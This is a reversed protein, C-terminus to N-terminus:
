ERYRLFWAQIFSQSGFARNALVFTSLYGNSDGYIFHSDVWATGASNMRYGIAYSSDNTVALVFRQMGTSGSDFSVSPTGFVGIFGSCQEFEGSSPVFRTTPNPFFLQDITGFFWRLCGSNNPAEYVVICRTGDCAMSPAHWTGISPIGFTSANFLTISEPDAAGSLSPIGWIHIANLNDDDSVSGGIFAILFNNSAQDYVVNLGGRNVQFSPNNAGCTEAGFTIGGNTSRKYCIRGVDSGQIYPAAFLSNRTVYAVLMEDSGPKQAVAPIRAMPPAHEQLSTIGSGAGTYKGTAVAGGGGVLAQSNSGRGWVLHIRPVHQPLSGPRFLARGNVVGPAMRPATWTSWPVRDSFLYTKYFKNTTRKPFRQQFLEVDWDKPVLQRGGIAASRMLTMQDQTYDCNGSQNEDPDDPHHSNFVGHGLEHLLVLMFDTKGSENEKVGWVFDSCQMPNIQTLRRKFFYVGGKYRVGSSVYWYAQALELGSRCTLDGRLLISGTPASNTTGAHTGGYRFRIPSAFDENLINLTRKVANQLDALSLGTSLSLSENQYTSIYVDIFKTASSWNTSDWRCPPFIDARAPMAM